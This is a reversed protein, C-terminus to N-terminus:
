MKLLLIRIFNFLKYKLILFLFLNCYSDIISLPEYQLKMEISNILFNFKFGYFFLMIRVFPM